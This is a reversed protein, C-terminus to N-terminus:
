LITKVKNAHLEEKKKKYEVMKSIKINDILIKLFFIPIFFLGTWRIMTALGIFISSYIINSKSKISSNSILFYISLLTLSSFAIDSNITYFSSVTWNNLAILFYSFFAIKENFIKKILIYVSILFLISFEVIIIKGAIFFDGIITSVGGILLPLGAPWFESHFPPINDKIIDKFYIFYSFGDTEEFIPHYSFAFLLYLINFMVLSILFILNYRSAKLFANIKQM